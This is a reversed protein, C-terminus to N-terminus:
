QSTDTPPSKLGLLAEVAAHKNLPDDPVSLDPEIYVPKAAGSPRDLVFRPYFLLLGTNPLRLTQVGGSQRTRVAGGVGAVKAFGYDQVVNSFLVASSYTLPGVLVYVQGKFRLPEDTPPETATEIEGSVIAGAVEGPARPQLVRKIYGSGHKYPRDAIYRLLGDRWMDDDGGGNQRIDIVLRTAGAAAIRAFCDNTFDFFRAKDPWSFAAVTLVAGQKRVDCQYTSEFSAEERLIAPTEGSGAIVQRGANALDIHFAVPSGYVKAYFLWWRKALLASRSRPTDGHVRALLARVVLGADQGNIQRIRQGAFPTPAGGLASVIRLAGQADLSVEFPFFTKGEAAAQASEKRWDPLGIFLHGDALVPNLQALASWAQAQTLPHDLQRDIRRTARELQAQSVSHSLDPHNREITDVALRLDSRLGAVSIPTEAARAVGGALTAAMMALGLWKFLHAEM